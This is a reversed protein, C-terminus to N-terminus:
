LPRLHCGLLGRGAWRQPTLRLSVPAGSRLVVAEVAVGENEALEAAVAQLTGPSRWTVAGFRCLQDGLQLGAEEAPSALSVEDIVAFPPPVDAMGSDAAGAAGSGRGNGLWAPPPPVLQPNPPRETRDPLGNSPGPDNSLSHLQHLLPEMQRTLAKHDNTLAAAPLIHLPLRPEHM